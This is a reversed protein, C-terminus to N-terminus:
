NDFLRTAKVGGLYVDYDRLNLRRFRLNVVQRDPTPNVLRFTPADRDRRLGDVRVPAGMSVARDGEFDVLLQNSDSSVLDLTIEQGAEWPLPTKFTFTVQGGEVETEGREIGRPSQVLVGLAGPTTEIPADTVLS